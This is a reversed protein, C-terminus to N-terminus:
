PRPEVRFLVPAGPQEILPVLAHGAERWAKSAVRGLVHGRSEAISEDDLEAFRFPLPRALVLEYYLAPRSYSWRLGDVVSDPPLSVAMAELLLGASRDGSHDALPRTLAPFAAVAALGVGLSVLERDGLGLRERLGGLRLYALALGFGALASVALYFPLVMGPESPQYATFYLAEGGAVLLLALVPLRHRPDHERAGLFAGFGALLLAPVGHSARLEDALWRLKALAGGAEVVSGHFRGGTVFWLWNYLGNDTGTWRLTEFFRAQPHVYAPEAWVRLYLYFFCSAGLVGLALACAVVRVPPRRVWLALVFVLGLFLQSLHVGLSVGLLLAALYLFRDAAGLAYHLLLGVVAIAFLTKMAYAEPILAHHQFVPSGALLLAALSAGAIPVWSPRVWGRLSTATLWFVGALAGAASVASMWGIRAPLTGFPLLSFLKGLWTYVPYGTPHPVGLTAAAIVFEARDGTGIHQAVRPLLVALALLFVGAAWPAIAAPADWGRAVARAGVETAM